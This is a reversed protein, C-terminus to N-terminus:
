AVDCASCLFLTRHKISSQRAFSAGAAMGGAWLLLLFVYYDRQMAVLDASLGTFLYM